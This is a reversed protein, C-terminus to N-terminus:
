KKYREEDTIVSDLIIASRGSAIIGATELMQVGKRTDDRDLDIYTASQQDKLASRLGASLQRASMSATPVDLSAIEIAVKEAPTFRNRFGLKTVYRVEPIPASPPSPAPPPIPAPNTWVGNVLTAGNVTGDPVNTDYKAAVSPEYIENPEGQAVDRVASNEIWAKKM